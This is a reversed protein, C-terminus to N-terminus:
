EYVLPLYLFLRPTVIELYTVFAPVIATDIRVQARLLYTGPVLGNTTLPLHTSYMDAPAVQITESSTFVTTEAVFDVLQLELTAHVASDELRNTVTFPVTLQEDVVAESPPRGEVDLPSITTVPDLRVTFTAQSTTTLDSMQMESIPYVLEDIAPGVYRVTHTFAARTEPDLTATWCLNGDQETAGPASVVEVGSPLPQTLTISVTQTFPNVVWLRPIYTLSAPRRVINGYFPYAYVAVEAESATLQARQGDEPQLIPDWSHEFRELGYLGTDTSGLLDITVNSGADPSVGEGDRLHYVRLARRSGSEIERADVTVLRQYSTGLFRTTGYTAIAEYGTGYASPNHLALESYSRREVWCPKGCIEGFLIYEGESVGNVTVNDARAVQPSIGDALNDMGHVSNLYIRTSADLAGNMGEAAIAMMQTDERLDQIDQFMAVVTSVTDFAVVGYGDAALFSLSRLVYKILFEEIWGDDESERAEQAVHLPFAEARLTSALITNAKIRGSFDEIYAAEEAESLAPMSDLTALRTAALDAQYVDHLEVHLPYNRTQLALDSQLGISLADKLADGTVAEEALQDVFDAGYYVKAQWLAETAAKVANADTVPQLLAARFADRAPEHADRLELIHGWGRGAVGPFKMKTLKTVDEVGGYAGSLISVSGVLSDVMLEVEDAQREVAFFDGDAAIRASEALVQDLDGETATALEKVAQVLPGAPDILRNRVFIDNKGNDDGAVLNTAASTFSIFRADDSITSEDAWQDPDGGGLAVSIRVTDGSARDHVFVDRYDNGDDATLNAYSSFSVFQGDGSITSSWSKGTGQAGESDVSVRETVGTELDHVFVDDVGNTDGYVLNSAESTFTVFRGDASIHPWLSEGNGQYGYTSVSVRVTERNVRDRVFIDRQSNYDGAVLNSATSSFAVFRGDASIASSFSAGNAQYGGDTLSVRSTDGTARDHVFVDSRENTDGYVLNSAYSDFAVFRGDASISPASSMDNGEIGGTRESVRETLGTERDHVFVDRCRGDFYHLCENTDDDVLNNATSGFAVFRGDASIAPESSFGNAQGGGSVVSVRETKGTDLDRVFIDGQGNNDEEVLNEASSHFAVLHGDAAVVSGWSSSDAPRNDFGVSVLTMAGGTASPDASVNEGPRRSGAATVPEWVEPTVFLTLLIMLLGVAGVRVRNAM